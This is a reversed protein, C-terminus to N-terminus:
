ACVPQFFARPRDCPNTCLAHPLEFCGAGMYIYIYIYIYVLIVHASVRASLNREESFIDKISGLDETSDM